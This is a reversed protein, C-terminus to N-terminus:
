PVKFAKIAIANPGRGAPLMTFLSHLGATGLSATRVVAVDASRADVIFLLHGASSFAMASPGDGVHISGTRKGDDISYITVEQSRQNAVLLLSNDRSVLGRMPNDGMIYAGGVDNTTTVVESISNSQSNSVFVEGGDPKLALQVPARGVDLVAELRDPHAPYADPQAGSRALAIAMVQHGGSCAVFAKSSDPLVVADSAEPCGEFYARVTRAAPDVLSVSNGRRNPVVVTKGDPSPRAQVPEEGAGIAAIERRAKLDIMSITNSGANAVYAREGATDLDISVPRRHVQIIGVVSNNEADIVSVSGAGGPAGSNVVYVENRTPSAAVAVPNVGVPLERDLRVNVVDLVTVTNSGGNTVYAYERYNPPYQPFDRRKCGGLALTALLCVTFLRGSRGGRKLRGPTTRSPETM